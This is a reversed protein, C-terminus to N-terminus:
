RVFVDYICIFVGVCHMNCGYVFMYVYVYIHGYGYIVVYYGYFPMLWVCFVWGCFGCCLVFYGVWVGVYGLYGLGDDVEDVM